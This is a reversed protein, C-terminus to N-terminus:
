DHPTEGSVYRAATTLASKLATARDQGALEAAMHAAMFTDGAGTVRTVLVEPPRESIVGSADADACLAGGDTVLARLAGRAVLTQAASEADAFETQCLIGAEERNVYLVAGTADPASSLFPLLREAKGPSAPAVRLDAAAFAPDRAIQALVERIEDGMDHQLLKRAFLEYVSLTFVPRLDVGNPLLAPDLAEHAYIVVPRGEALAARSLTNDLALHHGREDILSNDVIILPRPASGQGSM